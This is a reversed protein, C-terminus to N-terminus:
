KIEKEATKLARIDSAILLYNGCFCVGIYDDAVKAAEELAQDRAKVKVANEFRDDMCSWYACEDSRAAAEAQEIQQAIWARMWSDDDRDPSQIASIIKAAREKPTLKKTTM